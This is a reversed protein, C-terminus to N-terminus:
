KLNPTNDALPDVGPLAVSNMPTPGIGINNIKDLWDQSQDLGWKQTDISSQKKAQAAQLGPQFKKFTDLFNTANVPDPSQPSLGGMQLWPAMENM